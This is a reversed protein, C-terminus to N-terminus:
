LLLSLLFQVEGTKNTKTQNKKKRGKMVLAAKAQWHLRPKGLHSSSERNAARKAEARFSFSGPARPRHLNPMSFTRQSIYELDVANKNFYRRALLCFFDFVLDKGNLSLAYVVLEPPVFM